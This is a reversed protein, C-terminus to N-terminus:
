LVYAGFPLGRFTQRGSIDTRTNQHTQSRQSVLDLSAEVPLDFNDVVLVRLEGQFIQASCKLAGLLLIFSALKIM